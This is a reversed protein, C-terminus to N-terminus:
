IVLISETWGHLSAMVEGTVRLIKWMRGQMEVQLFKWVGDGGERGKAAREREVGVGGGGLVKDIEEEQRRKEGDGARWRKEM